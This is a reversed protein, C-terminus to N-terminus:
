DKRHTWVNERRYTTWTIAQLDLPMIGVKSAATRYADAIDNYLGKGVSDREIGAIRIAHVDVTVATSLLPNLINDFFARTKLGNLIDLPHAGTAIANANAISRKLCGGNLNGVFAQRALLINRYWPMRPSLAAIIGAGAVVNGAERAIMHASAYWTMGTMIDDTTAREYVSLIEDTMTM